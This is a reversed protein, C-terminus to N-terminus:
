LKCFWSGTKHSIKFNEIYNFSSTIIIRAISINIFKRSKFNLILLFYSLRNNMFFATM